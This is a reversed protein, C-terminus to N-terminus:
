LQSIQSLRIKEKILLLLGIAFLISGIFSIPTIITFINITGSYLDAGVVKMLIPIGVTHFLTVLLNISTGILLLIAHSSKNKGIYTICAVLIIIQPIIFLLGPIYNLLSNEM